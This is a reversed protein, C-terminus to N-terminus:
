AGLLDQEYYFLAQNIEFIDYNAEEIFYAIIVDFKNSHSLTYGAKSLLDSTEDLNLRLAIAFAIV